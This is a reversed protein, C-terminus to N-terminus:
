WRDRRHAVATTIRRPPQAPELEAEQSGFGVAGSAAQRLQAGRTAAATSSSEKTRAPIERHLTQEQWAINLPTDARLPVPQAAGETSRSLEPMSSRRCSSRGAAAAAAPSPPAGGGPNRHRISAPSPASEAIRRCNPAASLARKSRSSVQTHIECMCATRACASGEEEGLAKEGL